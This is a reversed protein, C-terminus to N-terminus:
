ESSPAADEISKAVEKESPTAPDPKAEQNALSTAPRPIFHIGSKSPDTKGDAQLTPLDSCDLTRGCNPCRAKCHSEDLVSGCIECIFILDSM